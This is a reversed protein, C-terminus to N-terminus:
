DQCLEAILVALALDGDYKGSKIAIDAELLSHYTSKVREFTYARAQKLAKQLAFDPASELMDRIERQLLEQGLEKAMVILRLERTIMTLIYPATAGEQLLRYLLQQAIKRRGELIADVLSFINAERAYSTVKRVSDETITQGSCFTLLKDIENSMAWLDAGVLEILLKIAGASITGGSQEVRNQIWQRLVNDKFQPFAIVEALPTLAHLLRNTRKGKGLEGDILILVTTVPMQRVYDPLRMWEEFSSDLKAKTRASRQKLGSEQEFRELLGKVIVLRFPCLFPATNCEAVLENLSLCRGDLVRTNFALMESGGLGQKIEGLKQQLSFDDKGYLIYFM